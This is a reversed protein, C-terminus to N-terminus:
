AVFAQVLKNFSRTDKLTEVSWRDGRTALYRACSRLCPGDLRVLMSRSMQAESEANGM